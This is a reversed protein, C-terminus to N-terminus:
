GTLEARGVLGVVWGGALVVVAYVGKELPRSSQGGSGLGMLEDGGALKEWWGRAAGIM